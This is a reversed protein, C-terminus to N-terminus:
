TDQKKSDRHLYLAPKHCASVSVASYYQARQNLTACIFVKYGQLVFLESVPLRNRKDRLGTSLIDKYIRRSPRCYFHRCVHRSLLPERACLIQCAMAATQLSIQLSRRIPRKREFRIRISDATYSMEHTIAQQFQAYM